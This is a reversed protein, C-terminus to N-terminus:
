STRGSIRSSHPVLRMVSTSALFFRLFTVPFYGRCQEEKPAQLDPEGNRIEVEQGDPHHQIDPSLLAVVTGIVSRGDPHGVLGVTITAARHKRLRFPFREPVPINLVGIKDAIGAPGGKRDAHRVSLESFPDLIIGLQGGPDFLSVAGLLEVSLDLPQLFFVNHPAPLKGLQM